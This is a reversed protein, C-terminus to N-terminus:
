EQKAAAEEIAGQAQSLMEECSKLEREADPLLLAKAMDWMGPLESAELMRLADVRQQAQDRRSALQIMQEATPIPPQLHEIDSLQVEVDIALYDRLAGATESGLLGELSKCLREIIALRKKLREAWASPEFMILPLAPPMM